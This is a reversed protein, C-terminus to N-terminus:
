LFIRATVGLLVDILKLIENASELKEIENNVNEIGDKFQNELKELKFAIRELREIRLRNITIALENKSEFFKTIEEPSEGQIFGIVEISGMLLDLDELSQIYEDLKKRSNSIAM